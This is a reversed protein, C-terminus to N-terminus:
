GDPLVLIVWVLIGEKSVLQGVTSINGVCLHGTSVVLWEVAGINCTRVLFDQVLLSGDLLALIVWVLISQVLLWGDSLALLVQMM